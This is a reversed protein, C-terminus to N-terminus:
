ISSQRWRNGKKIFSVQRTETNDVSLNKNESIHQTKVSWDIYNLMGQRRLELGFEFDPGMDNNEFPKFEHEIYHKYKTLLCYMGFSDIEEIGVGKKVSVSEFQTPNYIDNIKWAGIYPIGWRGVQVGEIAGANPYLWYDKLLKSLSFPQFITDDEISFVYDCPSIFQKAFNHIKAIKVRRSVYDYEKIKQKLKSEYMVCLKQEFKSMETYNRAKVFLNSDGDVITLLNTKTKDCELFELRPFITMLTELRSIPLIITVVNNM